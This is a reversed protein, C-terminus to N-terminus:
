TEHTIEKNETNLANCNAPMIVKNFWNKMSLPRTEMADRNVVVADEAKEGKVLFTMVSTNYDDGEPPLHGERLLCDVSQM